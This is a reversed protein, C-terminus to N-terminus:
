PAAVLAIVERYLPFGGAANTMIVIGTGEERDFETYCIQRYSSGNAGSHSIRDGNETKEILWGLGFWSTDNMAVGSRLGPKWETKATRSLMLDVTHDSLSHAASRDTKLIEAIFRAYELPTCYLSYASVATDYIFRDHDPQAQGQANHHVAAIDYYCDQWEHSSLVLGLPEFLNRDVYDCYPMCTIQEIVRQLYLFGEGSYNFQTGPEFEVILPNGSQWGGPRWNPFGTTHSLVMRATIREHLPQDELYPKDLYEVLPRDIDLRGQEALKLALYALVPKSMSCAEFITNQDVKKDSGARLVGYQRDWAIQRNNIGAISVGPVHYLAMLRPVLEDLYEPIHDPNAPAPMKVTTDAGLDILCKAADRQQYIRALHYPTFGIIDKENVDAGNHVLTKILDQNGNRVAALFHESIQEDGMPRCCFAWEGAMDQIKIVLRNFGKKMNLVVLDDDPNIARGVWNEHVLEGNLWMQIGDDSGIGFLIREDHSMTIEACAYAIAYDPRGFHTNLDIIDTDSDLVNWQYTKGSIQVSYGAKIDDYTGASLQNQEFATKQANMDGNDPKDHLVPVPGLILWRRMFMGPELDTYVATEAIIEFTPFILLSVCILRKWMNQFLLKRIM